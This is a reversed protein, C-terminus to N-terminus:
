PTEREAFRARTIDVYKPNLESGWYKRGLSTAVIGTTGAGNFPDIVVDGPRSGALLCPEVLKPPFTAFHAFGRTCAVAISWVSRRNRNQVPAMDRRGGDNRDANDAQKRGSNGFRERGKSVEVTALTDYLYRESKSFLFLQEHDRTPRDRAGDPMANTKHWIVEQRLIWGASQLALAVRWPIGLLQKRKGYSDGINLWFTGDAKLVRRVEEFVAVLQAVYAEPTDELGIQGDIGYDRLGFYPPSTVCCQAVSCPLRRLNVLADGDAVVYGPGAIM